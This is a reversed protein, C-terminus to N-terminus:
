KKAEQKKWNLLAARSFFVPGKSTNWLRIILYLTRISYHWLLSPVLLIHMLMYLYYFDTTGTDTTTLCLHQHPVPTGAGSSPWRQLKKCALHCWLQQGELRGEGSQAPQQPLIFSRLCREKHDNGEQIVCIHGHHTATTLLLIEVSCGWVDDWQRMHRKTFPKLSESISNEPRTM